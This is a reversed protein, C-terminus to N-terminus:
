ICEFHEFQDLNYIKQLKEKIEAVVKERETKDFRMVKRSNLRKGEIQIFERYPYPLNDSLVISYVATQNSNLNVEGVSTRIWQPAGTRKLGRRVELDYFDDVFPYNVVNENKRYKLDRLFQYAKIPGWFPFTVVQAGTVVAGVGVMIGVDKIEELTKTM